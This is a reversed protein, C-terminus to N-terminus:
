TAVDFCLDVSTSRYSQHRVFNLRLRITPLGKIGLCKLIIPPYRCQGCAVATSVADSTRAASSLHSLTSCCNFKSGNNTLFLYFPVASHASVTSTREIVSMALCPSNKTPSSISCHRAATQSRCSAAAHTAPRSRGGSMHLSCLGFIIFDSGTADTHRCCRYHCM